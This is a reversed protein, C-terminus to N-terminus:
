ANDLKDRLLDNLEIAEDENLKFEDDGLKIVLGNSYIKIKLLKETGNAIRIGTYNTIKAM